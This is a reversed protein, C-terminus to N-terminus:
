ESQERFSDLMKVGSMAREMIAVRDTLDVTDPYIRGNVREEGEEPMPWIKPRVVVLPTIINLLQDMVEITQRDPVSQPQPPANEAKAIVGDVLGPLRTVQDLIGKAALEKLPMKRMRCLHGSPVRFDFENSSWAEAASAYPDAEPSPQLSAGSLTKTPSPSILPEPLQRAEAYAQQLEAQLEEISRTGPM